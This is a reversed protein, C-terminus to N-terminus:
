HYLLYQNRTLRWRSEAPGWSAAISAPDEGSRIRVITDKSGFLREASELEFKSGYLRHLASAIELGVRVPRLALRDTVIMFVGQCEQGNFKSASPTFTVPYFRIGPLQRGNLAAALQV